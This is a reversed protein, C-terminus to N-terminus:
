AVLKVLAKHGRARSRNIVAHDIRGSPQRRQEQNSNSASASAWALGPVARLWIVVPSRAYQVGQNSEGYLIRRSLFPSNLHSNKVPEAWACLEDFDNFPEIIRTVRHEIAEGNAILLDLVARLQDHAFRLGRHKHM